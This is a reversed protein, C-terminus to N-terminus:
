HEPIALVYLRELLLLFQLQLNSLQGTHKTLSSGLRDNAPLPNTVKFPNRNAFRMSEEVVRAFSSSDAVNFSIGNECFFSALTKDMRQFM